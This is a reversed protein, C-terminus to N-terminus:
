WNPTFTVINSWTLNICAGNNGGWYDVTLLEWILYVFSLGVAGSVIALLGGEVGETALVYNNYLDANSFCWSQGWWYTAHYTRGDSLILPNSGPSILMGGPAVVLEGSVIRANISALAHQAMTLDAAPVTARVGAPAAMTLTGDPLQVVYPTLKAISANLTGGDARSAAQPANQYLQNTQAKAGPAHVGSTAMAVAVVCGVVASGFVSILRTM